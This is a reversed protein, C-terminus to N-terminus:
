SKNGGDKKKGLGMFSLEMKPFFGKKEKKENSNELTRNTKALGYALAWRGYYNPDHVKLEPSPEAISVPVNLVSELYQPLGKLYAGGGSLIVKSIPYSTYEDQGQYYTVTEHIEQGLQNVVKNMAAQARTETEDKPDQNLGLIYKMQESDEFSLKTNEQIANTISLGAISSFHAFLRDEQHSIGTSTLTSGINCTIIINDQNTEEYNTKIAELVAFPLIQVGVVDLKAFRAARIYGRVMEKPAAAVIIKQRDHQKPEYETVAYDVVADEVDFPVRDSINFRIAQDLEEEDEIFPLELAIIHVKPNGIALHVSNTKLGADSWFNRLTETLAGLDQLSGNETVGPAIPYEGVEVPEGNKLRVAFIHSHGIDLGIFKNKNALGFM